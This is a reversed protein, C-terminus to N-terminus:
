ARKVRPNRLRVFIQRLLEIPALLFLLLFAIYWFAGTSTKPSVQDLLDLWWTPAPDHFPSTRSFLAWWLVILPCGLLALLLRRAGAVKIEKGCKQCHWETVDGLGFMSSRPSVYESEYMLSGCDACKRGPKQEGLKERASVPRRESLVRPKSTEGLAANEAPDDRQLPVAAGYNAEESESLIAPQVLPLAKDILGVIFEQGCSTCSAQAGAYAADM